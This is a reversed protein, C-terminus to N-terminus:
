LKKKYKQKGKYLNRGKIKLTDNKFFIKNFDKKIIKILFVNSDTNKPVYFNIDNTLDATIITIHNIKQLTNLDIIVEGSSNTELTFNKSNNIVIPINELPMNDADILKIFGKEQTKKEEVVIYNSKFQNYTNLIIFKKYKKIIGSSSHFNLSAETKFDFVSDNINITSNGIHPMTNVYKGTLNLEQKTKCSFLSLLAIIFGLRIKNLKTM